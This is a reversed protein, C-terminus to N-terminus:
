GSDDSFTYNSFNFKCYTGTLFRTLHLGSFVFYYLLSFFLFVFAHNKEKFLKKQLLLRFSFVFVPIWIIFRGFDFIKWFIYIFNRLFMQVKNIKNFTDFSPDVLFWGKVSYHYLLWCCFIM